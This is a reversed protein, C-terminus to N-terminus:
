ALYYWVLAMILLTILMGLLMIIRDQRSRGEILRMVTNSLGLTNGIDLVRRHASQLSIISNQSKDFSLDSLIQNQTM